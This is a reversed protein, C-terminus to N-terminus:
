IMKEVQQLKKFCDALARFAVLYHRSFENGAVGERVEEKQKDVAWELCQMLMSDVAVRMAKVDNWVFGAVRGKKESSMVDARAGMEVGIVRDMADVAETLEGAAAEMLEELDMDGRNAHLLVLLQRRAESLLKRVGRSDRLTDVYALKMVAEVIKQGDRM